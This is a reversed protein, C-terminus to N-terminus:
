TTAEPPLVADPVLAVPSAKLANAEEVLRMMQAQTQGAENQYVTSRCLLDGLKHALQSYEKDIEELTRPTSSNSSQKEDM